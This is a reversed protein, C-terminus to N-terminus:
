RKRNKFDRLLEEIAEEDDEELVQKIEALLNIHEAVAQLAAQRRGVRPYYANDYKECIEHREVTAKKKSCFGIDCREFQVYGKTYYPKYHRCGYCHKNEKEM